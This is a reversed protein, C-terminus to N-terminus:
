IEFAFEDGLRVTTVVKDDAKTIVNSFFYWLQLIWLFDSICGLMHSLLLLVGFTALRHSFVLLFLCKLPFLVTFLLALRNSSLM